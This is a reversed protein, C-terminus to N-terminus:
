VQGDDEITILGGYMCMLTSKNLLAPVEDILTDEKGNIWSSNIVPICPAKKAQSAQVAPNAMCSCIGFSEFNLPVVHDSVNAQPIDKIYIRHHVPLSLSSSGDGFKCKLIAGEVVYSYVTGEGEQVDPCM